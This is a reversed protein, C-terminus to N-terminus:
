EGTGETSKVEHSKGVVMNYVIASVVTITAVLMLWDTWAAPEAVRNQWVVVASAISSLGVLTPVPHRNAFSVPIVKWKLFQHVLVVALSALGTVHTIYAIDM